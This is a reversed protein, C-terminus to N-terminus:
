TLLSLSTLLLLLCEHTHVPTLVNERLNTKCPPRDCCYSLSPLWDGLFLPQCYFQSPFCVQCWISPEATDCSCRKQTGLLMLFSLNLSVQKQLQKKSSNNQGRLISSMCCFSFYVGFEILFNIFKNLQSVIVPRHSLRVSSRTSIQHIKNIKQSANKLHKSM